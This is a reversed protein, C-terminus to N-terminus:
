QDGSLHARFNLVKKGSKLVAEEQLIEDTNPTDCSHLIVMSALITYFVLKNM